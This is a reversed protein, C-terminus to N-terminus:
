EFNLKYIFDQKSEVKIVSSIVRIKAKKYITLIKINKFEQNFNFIFRYTRYDERYVNYQTIVNGEEDVIQFLHTEPTDYSFSNLNNRRNIIAAVVAAIAGSQM